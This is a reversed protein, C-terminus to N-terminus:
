SRRREGTERETEDDSQGIAKEDGNELHRRKDRGQRRQEDAAADDEPQGAALVDSEFELRVFIRREEADALDVREAEVILDDDEDDDRRDAGDSEGIRGIAPRGIRGAAVLLGGAVGADVGAKNAHAGVHQGRKAGDGGSQHIERLALIGVRCETEAGLEITMAETITPPVAIKPPRPRTIPDHRPAIRTPRISLTNRSPTGIVRMM